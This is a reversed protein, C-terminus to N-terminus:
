VLRVWFQTILPLIVTAELTLGLEFLRQLDSIIDRRQEVMHSLSGMSKRSM